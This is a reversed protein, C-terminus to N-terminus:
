ANCIFNFHRHAPTTLGEAPLNTFFGASSFSTGMLTSKVYSSHAAKPM